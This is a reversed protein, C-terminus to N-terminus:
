PASSNTCPGNRCTERAPLGAMVVLRGHDDPPDIGDYRNTLLPVARDKVTFVTLDDEVDTAQLVSHTKPPRCHAAITDATRGDLALVVARGATSLTDSVFGPVGEPEAPHDNSLHPFLFYRRGTAEKEGGAPVPIRATKRRGFSRELEGGDGLTASMDM